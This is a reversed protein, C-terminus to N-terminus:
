NAHRIRQELAQRAFASLSIGQAAALRQAAKRVEASVRFAVQPSAGEGSLSPRGALADHVDEVARAIYGEDILNGRADYVQEDASADAGLIYNENM